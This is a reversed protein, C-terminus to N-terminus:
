ECVWEPVHEWWPPTACHSVGAAGAGVVVGAGGAGGGGGTDVLTTAVVVAAGVVVDVVVVLTDVVEVAGTVVGITAVAGDVDEAAVAGGPAVARQLSPVYLKECVREPM